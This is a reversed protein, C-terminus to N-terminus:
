DKKHVVRRGHQVRFDHLCKPSCYKKLVRNEFSEGCGECTCDTLRSRLRWAVLLRAEDKTLSGDHRHRLFSNCMRCVWWISLPHDYGLYHHAVIYRSHKRGDLPFVYDCLECETPRTLENRKVAYNVLGHARLSEEATM